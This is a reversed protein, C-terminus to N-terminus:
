DTDSGGYVSPYRRALRRFNSRDLGALRAAESVNGDSRELAERVYRAEFAEIALAKAAQFPQASLQGVPAGTGRSADQLTEPLVDTEIVSGRTLVVAREIANELERVNGPWGYAQLRALASTSIGDIRRKQKAAHRRLFHYALQAIDEQRDRLPPTQLAIVNLRYYLDERFRGEAVARAIDVHTAAIIRVDVARPQSEGIRRVEGEQLVRLLKVQLALPMDGIEDLLLTGGHAAEFLGEHARDAGTFAGKAHGFLESELLADPLASCNVAVFAKARRPSGHHLARAVLEKGTGSEGRILVSSSAHRVSEILAYLRRMAPASGVIGYYDDDLELRTELFRNRDLLRKRESARAVTLVLTEPPEFPKTLFDYAGKRMADVATQITAYATMMVVQVDPQERRIVDLVEPGSLDPLRVDLLVVDIPEAAVIALAETGTGATRVHHEDGRFHRAIARVLMPEDDVILLRV